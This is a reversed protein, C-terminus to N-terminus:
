KGLADLYFDRFKSVADHRENSSEGDMWTITYLIEEASKVHLKQTVVGILGIRKYLIADGVKIDM